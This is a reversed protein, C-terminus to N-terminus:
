AQRRAIDGPRCGARICNLESQRHAVAGLGVKRGEHRPRFRDEVPAAHPDDAPPAPQDRAASRQRPDGGGADEEDAVYLDLAVAIPSPTNFNSVSM